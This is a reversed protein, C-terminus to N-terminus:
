TNLLHLYDENQLPAPKMWPGFEKLFDLSSYQTQIRRIDDQKFFGAELLDLYDCVVYHVKERASSLLHQGFDCTHTGTLLVQEIGLPAVSAYDLQDFGPVDDVVLAELMMGRTNQVKTRFFITTGDRFIIRAESVAGIRAEMIEEAYINNMVRAILRSNEQTSSIFLVRKGIQNRAWQMATFTKGSARPTKAITYKMKSNLVEEQWKM